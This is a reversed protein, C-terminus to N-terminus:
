AKKVAKKTTKKTAKKAIVDLCKNLVGDMQGWVNTLKGLQHDLATPKLLKFAANITDASQSLSSVLPRLRDCNLVSFEEIKAAVTYIETISHDTAGQMILVSELHTRIGDLHDVWKNLLKEINDLRESTKLKPM